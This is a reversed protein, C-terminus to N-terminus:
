VGFVNRAEERSFGPNQYLVKELNKKKLEKRIHEVSTIGAKKGETQILFWESPNCNEFWESIMESPFEEFLDYLINEFGSEVASLQTHTDATCVDIEKITVDDSLVVDDSEMSLKIRKGMSQAIMIYLGFSFYDEREPHKALTSVFATEQTWFLHKAQEKGDFGLVVPAVGNNIMDIVTGMPNTISTFVTNQTSFNM